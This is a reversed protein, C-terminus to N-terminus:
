YTQKGNKLVLNLLQKNDTKIIGGSNLNKTLYEKDILIKKPM